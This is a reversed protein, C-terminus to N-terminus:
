SAPWSPRSRTTWAGSPGSPTRCRRRSARRPPATGRSGRRTWTRPWRARPRAHRRDLHRRRVVEVKDQLVLKRYREVTDKPNSEEEVVLQVPRGLIGGAKNVREAWWETGRLGATGSRRRSGPGSPWCASRSPSPPCARGRRRGSWRRSASRAPRRRARGGGQPVRAQEDGHIDEEDKLTLGATGQAGAPRGGGAAQAERVGGLAAGPLLRLRAGAVAARGPHAQACLRLREAVDEPTEMYFRSSTLWAAPWRATWASRRGCARDRGDRPQRVRVRVAPVQGRAPGPVDLPLVAQRAPAVPSQRLLRPLRDQGERGGRLRQVDERVRRTQGPVIAASPEDIQIWDAGAAALAKLEANVAPVLDWCLALRDNNYADGPRTQVHISLTVPGPCTAKVPKDTQTKLYKFEDVTGLGKPVTIKQRRGTARCATTPTSGPRACRSWRRSGRWGATSPRCSSSAACRATASSTSAPGSRTASPSSPPTTSPRRPTPRGTSARRSRTSRRGSGAPFGHSGMVHTYLLPLKTAM